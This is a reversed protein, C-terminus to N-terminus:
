ILYGKVNYPQCKGECIGFCPASKCSCNHQAAYECYDKSEYANTCIIEKANDVFLGGVKRRAYGGNSVIWNNGKPTNPTYYRSTAHHQLKVIEYNDNFQRLSHLHNIIEPTADGLLAFKNECDCVISTANLNTVLAHYQQRAFQGVMQLTNEEDEIARRFTRRELELYQRASELAGIAEERTSREHAYNEEVNELADLMGDLVSVFTDKRERLSEYHTTIEEFKQELEQETNFFTDNFNDNIWYQGRIDGFNSQMVGIQKVPLIGYDFGGSTTSGYVDPWLVNVNTGGISLVDGCKVTVVKDSILLVKELLDIIANSLQFGWSAKSAVSLLRAAQSSVIHGSGAPKCISYPIYTERFRYSSPIQLIGNFHDKHFHSVMLRTLSGRSIESKIAGYAFDSSYLSGARNDSGCDVLMMEHNDFDIISCDGCKVPKVIYIMIERGLYKALFLKRSHNIYLSLEYILLPHVSYNFLFELLANNTFAAM